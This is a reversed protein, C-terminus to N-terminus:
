WWLAFFYKEFLRFAEKKHKNIEKDLEEYLANEWHKEYYENFDNCMEFCHKMRLIILLWCCMDDNLDFEEDYKKLIKNIIPRQKEVWMKPMKSVEKKLEEGNTPCGNTCEAFEELMKPFTDMFWDYISWLDYDCYGKKARQFKFKIKEIIKKM